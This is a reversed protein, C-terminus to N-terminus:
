CRRKSCRRATVAIIEHDVPGLLEDRVAALGAHRDNDRSSILTGALAAKRGEQDLRWCFAVNDTADLVFKPLAGRMGGLDLEVVESDRLFVDEAHDITAVADHHRTKGVAADGDGRLRDADCLRSEFCGYAIRAFALDCALRDHVQLADAGSESVHRRLDIDGSLIVDM